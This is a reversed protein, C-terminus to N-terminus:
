YIRAYHQCLEPIRDYQHVISPVVNELSIDDAGDILIRKRDYHDSLTAIIGDRSPTAHVAFNLADARLLYNHIAQDLGARGVLRKGVRKLEQAMSNAYHLVMERRGFSVGSCLIWEDSLARLENEGYCYSIWPGNIWCQGIRVEEAGTVFHLEDAKDFPDNQIVVDRSDCLMLGKYQSIDVRCCYNVVWFYRALSVHYTATLLPHYPEGDELRQALDNILNSILGRGRPLINIAQRVRYDTPRVVQVTDLYERLRSVSKESTDHYFLVVDVAKMNRSISRLFTRLYTPPYGYGCTFILNEAKSNRAQRGDWSTHYPARSFPTQM